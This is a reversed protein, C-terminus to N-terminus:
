IEIRWSNNGIKLFFNNFQFFFSLLTLLFESIRLHPILDPSTQLSPEITLTWHTKSYDSRFFPVRILRKRNGAIARDM